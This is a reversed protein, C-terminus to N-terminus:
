KNVVLAIVLSTIVSVGSVIASIVSVKYSNNQNYDAQGARADSPEVYIVDNQKLYFYPSSYIKSDNLNLKHYTVVGDEERWVTVNGRKGFVSMDGAKALADLVSVRETTFNYQGPQQVEGMVNVNFNMLQVRVIPDEVDQAIRKTLYDALQASTMGQVHIKGLIPFTIDGQKDVTYTQKQTVTNNMVLDSKIAANNFPLNYISTAEPVRSSVNILLEDDPGIKLESKVIPLSGETATEVTTVDSFYSLNSSKCGTLLLLALACIAAYGARLKMDDNTDTTPKNRINLAYRPRINDASTM